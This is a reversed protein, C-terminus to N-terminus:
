HSDMQFTLDRGPVVFLVGVGHELLSFASQSQRSDFFVEVHVLSFRKLALENCNLALLGLKSGETQTRRSVM